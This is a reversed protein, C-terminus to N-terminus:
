AASDQRRFDPAAAIVALDTKISPVVEYSAFVRDIPAENSEVPLNPTSHPRNTKKRLINQKKAAKQVQHNVKATKETNAKNMHGGVSAQGHIVFLFSAVGLLMVKVVHEKLFYRFRFDGVPDFRKLNAPGCNM